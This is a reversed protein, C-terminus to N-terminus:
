DDANNSQNSRQWAIYDSVQPSGSGYRQQYQRDTTNNNPFSVADPSYNMSQDGVYTYGNSGPKNVAAFYGIGQENVVVIGGGGSPHSVNPTQQVVTPATSGDM